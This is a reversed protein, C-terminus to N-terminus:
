RKGPLPRRRGQKARVKYGGASVSLKHWEYDNTPPVYFLVYQHSLDRVIDDFIGALKDVKDPFFSLGGSREALQDLEQRLGSVAV